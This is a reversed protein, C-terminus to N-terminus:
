PFIKFGYGYAIIAEFAPRHEATNAARLRKLTKDRVKKRFARGPADCVLGKYRLFEEHLTDHPKTSFSGTFCHFLQSGRPILKTAVAHVGVSRAYPDDSHPRFNYYLHEM